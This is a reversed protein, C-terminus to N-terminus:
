EASAQEFHFDCCDGGCALTQTRTYRIGLEDFYEPFVLDDAYCNPRCGEPVGMREALELWVCWKVNLEFASEGRDEVAMKNCGAEVSSKAMADIYDRFVDIPADDLERVNEHKPLCLLMPERAAEDMVDKMISVAREADLVEALASFMALYELQQELFGADTMGRERLDSLDLKSARRRAKLFHWMLRAKQWASLHGMIVAKSRRQMREKVDDPWAAEAASFAAGFHRLDSVKM